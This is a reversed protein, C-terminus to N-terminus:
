LQEVLRGEVRRRRGQLRLRAAQGQWSEQARRLEQAAQRLREPQVLIRM